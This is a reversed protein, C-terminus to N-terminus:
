CHFLNMGKGLPVLPFSLNSLAALFLGLTYLSSCSMLDALIGGVFKSVGYAASFASSVSGIDTESISPEKLLLPMTVSLARRAVCYMAYGLSLLFITSYQRSSLTAM